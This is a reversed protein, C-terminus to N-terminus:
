PSSEEPGPVKDHGIGLSDRYALFEGVLLYTQALGFQMEAESVDAHVGKNVLADLSDLRAALDNLASRFSRLITTKGETAALIRNRYNGQGVDRLTGDSSVHKEDSAPFMHDAVAEIVRRCTVLVQARSEPGGSAAARLAAGLQDRLAPAAIELLQDVRLRHHSLLSSVSDSAMLEVETQVLYDHVFHRVRELIEQRDALNEVYRSAVAWDGAQVARDALKSMSVHQAVMEAISGIPIGAEEGVKGARVPTRHSLHDELLESNVQRAEDYSRDSHIQTVTRIRDSDPGGVPRLELYLRHSMTADGRSRALRYARRASVDLPRDDFEDLATAVQKLLDGSNM